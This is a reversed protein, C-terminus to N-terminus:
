SPAAAATSTCCATAPASSRTTPTCTDRRSRRLLRRARRRHRGGGARRAEPSQGRAATAPVPPPRARPRSAAAAVRFGDARPQGPGARGHYGVFPSLLSATDQVTFGSLLAGSLQPRAIWFPRTPSRRVTSARSRRLAVEVHSGDAALTVRRVDGVDVGRRVSACALACAM